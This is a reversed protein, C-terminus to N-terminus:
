SDLYPKLDKYFIEKTRPGIYGKVIHGERNIILTTPIGTIPQGIARGYRATVDMIENGKVDTLVTYEMEWKKMFESIQKETGSKITIGVIELGEDKHEAYLRNLDPIEARCPGCWTGWFNLLVVKGKLDSLRFLDGNVQKLTFDPAVLVNTERTTERETIIKKVIASPTFGPSGSPPQDGQGGYGLTLFSFILSNVFYRKM